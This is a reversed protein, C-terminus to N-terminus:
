EALSFQIPVSFSRRDGTMGAVFPPFQACSFSTLAAQDLLEHGSSQIITAAGILVGQADISFEIVVIGEQGLRRAVRPYSKCRHIAQQVGNKYSTESVKTEVVPMPEPVPTKTEAVVPSELVPQVPQPETVEQKPKSKKESSEGKKVPKPTAVPTPIPPAPPAESMVPEPLSPAPPPPEVAPEPPTVQQIPPPPEPVFASLAIHHPEETATPMEPSKNVSYILLAGAHILLSFVLFLATRSLM